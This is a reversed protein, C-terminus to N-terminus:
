PAGWSMSARMMANLEFKSRPTSAMEIASAIEFRGPRFGVGVLAWPWAEGRGNPNDPVVLELESAVFITRPLPVRAAVRAGTWPDIGAGQRRLDLMLAGAGRDDLRLTTRVTADVGVNGDLIRGSMMPLLDLRPCMRWMLTAGFTDSPIDGLASFLSTAPILRSPSRHAAYIEPRLAGFRGSLSARVETLGPNLLDYSAQSSFNFWSAPTSAFDAGIEEQDLRGRDRKQLYSIGATTYRGIPQAVRGGLAWDAKPYAFQPVVPIGTFAELTTRTPLRLHADIGDIHLPRIAGASLIQRGIRLQVWNKPDHVRVVAVLADANGGKGAWVVTEADVWRNLKDEGTLQIFGPAGQQQPKSESFLFADARLRYSDAHAPAAFTLFLFPALLSHRM